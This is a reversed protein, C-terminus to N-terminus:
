DLQRVFVGPRCDNCFGGGKKPCKMVAAKMEAHEALVQYPEGSRKMEEVGAEFQRREDARTRVAM